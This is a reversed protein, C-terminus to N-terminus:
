KILIFRSIDQKGSNSIKLLLMGNHRNIQKLVEENILLTHNGATQVSNLITSITIGNLDLIDIQTKGAAALRYNIRATTRVPNPFIKIGSNLSQSTPSIIATVLNASLDKSLYVHYEGPKLNITSTGGSVNLSTGTLYSYWVGDSPFPISQSADTLDFNGVVVIKLSDDNISLTKVRTSFNYTYNTTTFTSFYNKKM